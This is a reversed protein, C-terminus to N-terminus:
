FSIKFITVILGRLESKLALYDSCHYVNEDTPWLGSKGPVWHRQSYDNYHVCALCDRSGLWKLHFGQYFPDDGNINELDTLPLYM